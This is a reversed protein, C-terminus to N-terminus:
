EKRFIETRTHNNFKIRPQTKAKSLVAKTYIDAGDVTLNHKEVLHKKLIYAKIGGGSCDTVDGAIDVGRDLNLLTSSQGSTGAL